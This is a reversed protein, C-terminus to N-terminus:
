SEDGIPAALALFEEKRQKLLQMKLTIEESAKEIEADMVAVVKQIAEGTDVNVDLEIPGAYIWGTPHSKGDEFLNFCTRYDGKLFADPYVIYLHQKLKM